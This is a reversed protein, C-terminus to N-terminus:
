LSKWEELRCEWEGLPLLRERKGDIFLEGGEIVSYAFELKPCTYWAVVAVVGCM